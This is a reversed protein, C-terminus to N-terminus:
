KNNCKIFKYTLGYQTDTEWIGSIKLIFAFDTENSDNFLFKINGTKIINYIKYSPEKNPVVMKNLIAHEIQKIQEIIDKYINTDFKCKYKNFYKEIIMNDFVINLYIGNFTIQPTSYLIRIFKCDSMINNKIPELFYVYVIDFQFVNKVINM